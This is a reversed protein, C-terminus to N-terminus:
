SVAQFVQKLFHKPTMDQHCSTPKIAVIENLSDLTVLEFVSWTSSCFPVDFPMYASLSM